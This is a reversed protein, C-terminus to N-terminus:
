IGSIGNNKEKYKKNFSIGKDSASTHWAIAIVTSVM